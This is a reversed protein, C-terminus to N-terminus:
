VYSPVDTAYCLTRDTSSVNCHTRSKEDREKKIDIYIACECHAVPLSRPEVHHRKVWPPLVTRADCREDRRRPGPPCPETSWPLACWAAGWISPHEEWERCRRRQGYERPEAYKRREPEFRECQESEGEAEQRGRKAGECVSLGRTADDM